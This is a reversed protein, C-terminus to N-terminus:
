KVMIKQTMGKGHMMKSGEVSIVFPGPHGNNVITIEVGPVLDMAALRSKQGKGAEIDVMQVKNGEKIKSLPAIHESEM